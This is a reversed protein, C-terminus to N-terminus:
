SIGILQLQSIVGACSIGSFAGPNNREVGEVLGFQPAWTGDANRITHWLQGNVIGVVQMQDGVGACSVASFAGPNNREIGEVLGFQPAWTGDANRITHWLQGGSPIVVADIAWMESDIGCVGYAIRFFGQEGFGTGWSNKCIWCRNVDDYGVVCVCHGGAVQNSPDNVPSYVGGTYNYFDSYVTFCTSVPGLRALFSKMDAVSTLTHWATIKHLRSAADPCRKCAQNAATYPFCAADVIGQVLGPYASDPWWGGGPCPGAGQQPGWCFWLDAESLDVAQAANSRAIRVRSEFAAVSGFAVCSGCAGQDEIPTVWNAGNMNRWDVSTPLGIAQASPAAAVRAAARQEREALSPAGAPPVAGLRARQEADPLASLATEGPEWRLRQTDVLRRVSGADM